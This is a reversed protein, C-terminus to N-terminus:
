FRESGKRAWAELFVRVAELDEAPRRQERAIRELATRFQDPDFLDFDSRIDVRMERRSVRDGLSGFGGLGTTRSESTLARALRVLVDDRRMRDTLWAKMEAGDDGAFERWRYLCYMIDRQLLLSDDQAAQRLANLAREILAPLAEKTTLATALDLERGQRPYHDAYASSVFDVLWGLTARETAALYLASKEELTFRDETVRRILWHIRLSTTAMAFGREGDQERDIADAIEFIASFFAPVKDKAIQRGHSTLEDLVVPVMSKAKSRLQTAARLLREQIFEKDGSRDLLERIEKSPLTDDSLSMKFYTDFHKAVCVRRELEWSERFGSYTVEEFAPFLRQLAIQLGELREKPMGALFPDFRAKDRSGGRSASTVIDRHQRISTYLSPEYLRLTELALYDAHSVNNAVPPWTVTIANILRTVHRPTTLYPVVVDYFLNMFRVQHEEKPTGCREQFATLLANHLDSPTPSPLEFSAQIIKELFHPGESPFREKVAADALARDFVMLYMVNPLRGISKVLRFVGLAEDPALRDIDDIIILVRRDQAELTKSLKRFTKELSPKDPFFRKAFAASGAALAGWGSTTALAIASGLVPGAQLVHRGMEPVLDKVKDGLSSKLASNLEQLFALAIAEEGRYWWCKFDFVSLTDDKRELLEARILNVASSKGSGWPGTVAITSGVPKAIGLLSTALAEAFAHVGYCDDERREIPSDNFYQSM